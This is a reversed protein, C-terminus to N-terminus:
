LPVVNQQKRVVKKTRSKVRPLRDLVSKLGRVTRGEFQEPFTEATRPRPSGDVAGDTSSTAAIEEHPRRASGEENDPDGESRARRRRGQSLNHLRATSRAHISSVVASLGTMAASLGYRSYSQEAEAAGDKQDPAVPNPQSISLERTPVRSPWLGDGWLNDVWSPRTSSIGPTIPDSNERSRFSMRTISQRLSAFVSSSRRLNDNTLGLTVRVPYLDEGCHEPDIVVPDPDPFEGNRRSGLKSTIKKFTSPREQESVPPNAAADHDDAQAKDAREKGHRVTDKNTIPELGSPPTLAKQEGHLARDECSSRKNSPSRSTSSRRLHALKSSVAELLSRRSTRERSEPTEPDEPVDAQGADVTSRRTTPDSTTIYSDPFMQQVRAFLSSAAGGLRYTRPQHSQSSDPQAVSVEEVEHEPVVPSAAVSTGLGSDVITPTLNFERELRQSLRAPSFPMPSNPALPALTPTSGLAAAPETGAEELVQQPIHIAVSADRPRDSENEIMMDSIEDSAIIDPNETLDTATLRLRALHQQAQGRIPLAPERPENVNPTSTGPLDPILSPTSSAAATTTCAISLLAPDTSRPEGEDGAGGRLGLQPRADLM